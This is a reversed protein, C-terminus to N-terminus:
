ANDSFFRSPSGLLERLWDRARARLMRIAGERRGMREAVERASLGDLDCLRVAQAYDPPLRGLAWELAAKAEHAAASRSPTRSIGGLAEFTDLWSDAAPNPKIRKGPPPRKQQGLGRIADKLNNQAMRRLWAVFSAEGNPIFDRIRMFAEFYAVQMVDDADIASRWQEGIVLGARVSPGHLEILRALADENGAVAQALLEGGSGSMQVGRRGQDAVPIVHDRAYRIAFLLFLAHCANAVTARSAARFLRLRCFSGFMVCLFRAAHRGRIGSLAAGRRGHAM